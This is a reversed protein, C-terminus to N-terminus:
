GGLSRSGRVSIDKGLLQLLSSPPGFTHRCYNGFLKEHESLLTLVLRQIIKKDDDKGIGFVRFSELCEKEKFCRVVM